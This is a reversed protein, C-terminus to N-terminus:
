LLQIVEQVGSSSPSLMGPNQTGAGAGAGGLQSNIPSARREKFSIHSLSSTSGVATGNNNNNNENILRTTESQLKKLRVNM